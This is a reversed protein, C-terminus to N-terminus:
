YVSFLSPILNDRGLQTGAACGRSLAVFGLALCKLFIVLLLFLCNQALNRSYFLLLSGQSANLIAFSGRWRCVVRSVRVSVSLLTYVVSSFIIVAM